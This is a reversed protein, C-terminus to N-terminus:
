HTGRVSLRRQGRPRQTRRRRSLDSRGRGRMKQRPPPSRLAAPRKPRSPVRTGARGGARAKPFRIARANGDSGRRSACGTIDVTGISSSSVDLHTAEAARKMLVKNAGNDHPSCASPSACCSRPHLARSRTLQSPPVRRPRRVTPTKTCHSQALSRSCSAVIPPIVTMRFSALRRLREPCSQSCDNRPARAHM